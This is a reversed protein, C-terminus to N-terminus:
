TDLDKLQQLWAILLDFSAHNPNFKGARIATGFQLGPPDQWALWTRLQAKDRDVDHFRPQKVEGLIDGAYNWNPDAPDLWGRGTWWVGM